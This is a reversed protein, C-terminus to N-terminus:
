ALPHKLCADLVEDSASALDLFKPFLSAAAYPASQIVMSVSLAAYGEYPYSPM